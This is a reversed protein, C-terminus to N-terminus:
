QDRVAGATEPSRTQENVMFRTGCSQCEHPSHRNVDSFVDAPANELDYTHLQCDGGKTQFREITGCKPCPVLIEDFMGM